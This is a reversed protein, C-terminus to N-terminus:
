EDELVGAAADLGDAEADDSRSRNILSRQAADIAGWAGPQAQLGALVDVVRTRSPSELKDM